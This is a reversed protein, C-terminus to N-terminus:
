ALGLFVPQMYGPVRTVSTIRETVLISHHEGRIVTVVVRPGVAALAPVLVVTCQPGTASEPVVLAGPADDVTNAMMKRPM